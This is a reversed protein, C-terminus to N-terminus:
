EENIMENLINKFKNHSKMNKNYYKRFQLLNNKYKEQLEDYEEEKKNLKRTLIENNYKLKKNLEKEENIEKQFFTYNEIYTQHCTNKIHSRFQPTCDFEFGAKCPCSYTIRKREYPKYPSIDKYLGTDPDFSPAYRRVEITKVIMSM